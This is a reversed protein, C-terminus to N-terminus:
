KTDAGAVPPPGVREWMPNDILKGLGAEKLLRPDVPDDLYAVKQVVWRSEARSQVDNLAIEMVTPHGSVVENRYTIVRWLKKGRDYYERKLPLHTEQDITTVIRSFYRDASPQTEVQWAARGNEQSKGLLVPPKIDRRAMALDEFNLDTMLFKRDAELPSYEVTRREEPAYLWLGLDPKEPHPATLMAAGRVNAPLEIIVASRPGDDGRQRLAM